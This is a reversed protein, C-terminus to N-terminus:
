KNSLHKIAKKFDEVVREVTENANFFFSSNKEGVKISINEKEIVYPRFIGDKGEKAAPIFEGEMKGWMPSDVIMGVPQRLSSSHRLPMHSGLVTLPKGNKNISLEVTDGALPRLERKLKLLAKKLSPENYGGVENLFERANKVKLNQGFSMNQTKASVTKM